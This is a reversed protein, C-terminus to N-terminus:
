CDFELRRVDLATVTQEVQIQYVFGDPWAQLRWTLGPREPPVLGGRQLSYIHANALCRWHVAREGVWTLGQTEEYAEGM